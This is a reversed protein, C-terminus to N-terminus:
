TRDNQTIHMNESSQIKTIFFTKENSQCWPVQLLLCSLCSYEWHNKKKKNNNWTGLIKHNKSVYQENIICVQLALDSRKVSNFIQGPGPRYM